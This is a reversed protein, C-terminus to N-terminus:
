SHDRKFCLGIDETSLDTKKYMLYMAVHRPLVLEQVRSRSLLEAKTIDFGRCVDEMILDKSVEPNKVVTMQAEQLASEPNKKAELALREIHYIQAKSNKLFESVKLATYKEVGTGLFKRFVGEKDKESLSEIQEIVASSLKSALSEEFHSEKIFDKRSTLIVQKKQLLLRGLIYSFDNQLGENQFAVECGDIILVDVSDSFESVFRSRYGMVEYQLYRDLLQYGDLLRTRILPHMAQLGNALSHVLHTKGLGSQAEIVVLPTVREASNLIGFVRETAKKNFAGVYYNEFNKLPSIESYHAKTEPLSIVEASSVIKMKKKMKPGPGFNLLALQESM